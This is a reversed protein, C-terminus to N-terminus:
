KPKIFIVIGFKNSVVSDYIYLLLKRYLTYVLFYRIYYKKIPSLYKKSIVFTISWSYKKFGYDCFKLDYRTFTKACTYYVVSSLFIYRNV